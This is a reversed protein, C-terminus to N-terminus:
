LGELALLWVLVRHLNIEPGFTLFTGDASTCGIDRAYLLRKKSNVRGMHAGLGRDRAEAVLSRAVPGLKFETSGGLFLVDFTGWPVSESVGLGDQAVYATPYGLNQIKPLWEEALLNTSRADGVVDPAVAFACTEQHKIQNPHTLWEWWDRSNWRRSFAGNDACWTSGVSHAQNVRGLKGQIPTDILGLVGKGMWNIIEDSCPNGFYLM